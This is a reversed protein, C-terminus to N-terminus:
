ETATNQTWTGDAMTLKVDSGDQSTFEIVLGTITYDAHTKGGTAKTTITATKLKSPDVMANVETLVATSTAAVSTLPEAGKAYQEDEVVQLATYIAHGEEFYKSERARDIYGLLSPVLAAALIALIVLVVILEVLTFGKNNEKIRKM